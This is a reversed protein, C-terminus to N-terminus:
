ITVHRGTIPAGARPRGSSMSTIMFTEAQVVEMGIGGFGAGIIVIGPM